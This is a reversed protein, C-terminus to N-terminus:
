QVTELLRMICLSALRGLYQKPWWWVFGTPGSTIFNSGRAQQALVSTVCKLLLASGVALVHLAHLWCWSWCMGPFGV